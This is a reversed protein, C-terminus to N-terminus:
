CHTIDLQVDAKVVVFVDTGQDVARHLDVPDLGGEMGGVDDGVDELAHHTM